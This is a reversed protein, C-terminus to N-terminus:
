YVWVNGGHCLHLKQKYSSKYTTSLEISVSYISCTTKVVVIILPSYGM